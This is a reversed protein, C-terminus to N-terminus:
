KVNLKLTQFAQSLCSPCKSDLAKKGTVKTYYEMIMDAQEKTIRSGKITDLFDKIEELLLEKETKVQIIYTISNSETSDPSGAYVKEGLIDSNYENTTNSIFDEVEEKISGKCNRQHMELGRLTKFDDKGCLNCVIKEM